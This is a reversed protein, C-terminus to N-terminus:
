ENKKETVGTTTVSLDSRTSKIVDAVSLDKHDKHLTIMGKDVKGAGIKFTPTPDETTATSATLYALWGSEWVICTKDKTSETLSKIVSESTVTQKTITKGDAGFETITSQTPSFCGTTALAIAAALFGIKLSATITNEENM